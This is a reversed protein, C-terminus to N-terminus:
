HVDAACRFGVNFHATNGPRKNRVSTRAMYSFYFSGGRIVRPSDGTATGEHDRGSQSYVSDVWEAVSGGLDRIGRPTVDQPSTMVDSIDVTEPCGDIRLYGDNPLLVEHCRPPANGWPYLRNDKGRAAAEWENETPLRKGQVACYYRAGFWTVQVAPWAEMGTRARFVHEATYEIGAYRRELDLLFSESHGLAADFRVYRPSHDDEDPDVHIAMNSGNLADAMERNTVEHLDLFFPPVDVRTEPVQYNLVAAPCNPGIESCQHGVTEASQGVTVTGEDVLAMGVPPPKALAHRLAVEKAMRHGGIAGVATVVLAGAVWPRRWVHKRSSPEVAGSPFVDGLARAVDTGTAFRADAERALMRSVIPALHPPFKAWTARNPLLPEGTARLLDLMTTGKFPREGTVIEYAIIGLAFVDARADVREGAYQEPAMYGPTGRFASVSRAESRPGGAPAEGVDRMPALQGALGFDVLKLGGAGALMVNEPKLDRHVVGNAHLVALGEAIQLLVTVIEEPSRPTAMWERMTVGRIYEMAVFSCGDHEGADYIRAIREHELGAALRAERLLRLRHADDAPDEGADLVKIAVQRGLLTDSALYVTGMGGRGLRREFAYRGKEGWRTGSGSNTPPARPPAHAVARIVDDIAGDGVSDESADVSSSVSKTM